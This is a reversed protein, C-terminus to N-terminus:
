DRLCLKVGSLTLYFFTHKLNLNFLWRSEFTQNETGLTQRTLKEVHMGALCTKNM